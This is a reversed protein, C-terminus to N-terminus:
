SFVNRCLIKALLSALLNDLVSQSLRDFGTWLVNKLMVTLDLLERGALDAAKRVTSFKCICLVMAHGHYIICVVFPM